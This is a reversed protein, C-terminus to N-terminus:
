RLYATCRMSDINARQDLDVSVTGSVEGHGTTVVGSSSYSRGGAEVNCVATATTPLEQWREPMLKAVQAKVACGSSADCVTRPSKVELEVSRPEGIAMHLWLAAIVAPALRRPDVLPIAIV